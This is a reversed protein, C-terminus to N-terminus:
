ADVVSWSTSVWGLEAEIRRRYDTDIQPPAKRIYQEANQRESGRLCKLHELIQGETPNDNNEILKTPLSTWVVADLSKEDLWKPLEQINDPDSDGPEFSGVYKESTSERCVLARRASSINKCDMLAWLSRVLTGEQTLVLTVRKDQSVRALEVKIMPGDEFWYRKIPLTRPNWILSGWGLCAIRM